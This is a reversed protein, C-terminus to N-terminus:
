RPRSRRMPHLPLDLGESLPPSPVHRDDLGLSLPPPATEFYKKGARQAGNQDFYLPPAQAGQGGGRSGGSPQQTMRTFLIGKVTIFPQYPHYNTHSLLLGIQPFM